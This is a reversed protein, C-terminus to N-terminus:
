QHALFMLIGLYIEMIIKRCTFQLGWSCLRYGPTILELQSKKEIIPFMLDASLPIIETNVKLCRSYTLILESSEQLNKIYYFYVIIKSFIM